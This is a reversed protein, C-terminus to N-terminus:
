KRRGPKGKPKGENGKQVGNKARFGVARGLKDQTTTNKENASRWLKCNHIWQKKLKNYHWTATNVGLTVDCKKCRADMGKITLARECVGCIVGYSVPVGGSGKSPSLQKLDKHKLEGHEACIFQRIPTPKNKM